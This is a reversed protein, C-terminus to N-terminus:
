RNSGQYLDDGPKVQERASERVPTYKNLNMEFEFISVCGNKVAYVWRTVVEELGLSRKLLGAIAKADRGSFEYRAGKARLWEALLRGQLLSHQPNPKRGGGGELLRKEPKLSLADIKKELELLKAYLKRQADLVDALSPTPTEM